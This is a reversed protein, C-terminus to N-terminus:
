ESEYKRYSPDLERVEASAHVAVGGAPKVFQRLLDLVAETLRAKTEETRGALLGLSVHVVAHGETDPGVVTDETRRFQTKCAPPRAAAIDVVATHLARAFGPRDFGDALSDSYDVTIQPM